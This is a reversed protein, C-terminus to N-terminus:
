HLHKPPEGINPVRNERERVIRQAIKQIHMRIWKASVSGATYDTPGYSDVRGEALMRDVQELENANEPNYVAFTRGGHSKIVSFAPIDSPGDAIYIMNQFPVRRHEPKISSNVDLHPNKNCGKNIEFICRTKQTTDVAYSIQSIPVDDTSIDQNIISKGGFFQDVEQDIEDGVFHSAYVGDVAAAVLSGQIIEYHGSSVIYHEVVIGCQQFQPNQQIEFRTEEFFEPIGPFFQLKEGYSRLKDRTLGPLFGKKVASLLFNLYAFSDTLEVGSNKLKAGLGNVCSWFSREDIGYDEFIPAQMYGPILTKDFDWICAIVTKPNVRDTSDQM